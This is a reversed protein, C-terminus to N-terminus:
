MIIGSIIVYMFLVVYMYTSAGGVFAMGHLVSGSRVLSRLRYEMLFAKFAAAPSPAVSFSLTSRSMAVSVFSWFRTM